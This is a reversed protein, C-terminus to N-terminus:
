FDRRLAGHGRAHIPADDVSGSERVRVCYRGSSLLARVGDLTLEPDRQYLRLVAGAAEGVAVSTGSRGIMGGAPDAVIANWGALVDPKRLGLAGRSSSPHVEDRSDPGRPVYGTSRWAGVALVDPSRALAIMSGRQPDGRGHNGASALFTIGARRADALARAFAPEPALTWNTAVVRIDGLSERVHDLAVAASALEDVLLSHITLRGADSAGRSARWLARSALTTSEAGM